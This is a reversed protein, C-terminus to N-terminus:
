GKVEEFDCRLHNYDDIGDKKSWEAEVCRVHMLTHGDLIQTQDPAYLFVPCEERKSYVDDIFEQLEADTLGDWEISIRYYPDETRCSFRVGASSKWEADAPTVLEASFSSPDSGFDILVGTHWKSFRPTISSGAEIQLRWYRYQSTESFTAIYDQSDPGSLTASAFSTNDHVDTYSAADSSRSLTVDTVGQGQLIDGRALIIHDAAANKTTYDAGLDVLFRVITSATAPTFHQYRPGGTLDRPRKFDDGFIEANASNLISLVQAEYPIHNASIKLTGM